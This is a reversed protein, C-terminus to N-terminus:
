QINNGPALRNPKAWSAGVNGPDGQVLASFPLGSQLVFIGSLQWGGVLGNLIGRRDLFHRGLGFPLEYIYNSVWRAAIDMDTRGRSLARNHYDTDYPMGSYFSGSDTDLAKGWTFASTFTLGRSFRKTLTTQLSNYSLNGDNEFTS